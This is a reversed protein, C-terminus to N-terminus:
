RRTSAVSIGLGMVVFGAWGLAPLRTVAAAVLCGFGAVAILLGLLTRRPARETPSLPLRQSKPPDGAALSRELEDLLQQERESLGM